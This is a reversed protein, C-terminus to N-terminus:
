FRQLGLVTFVANSEHGNGDRSVSTAIPNSEGDLLTAVANGKSDLMVATDKSELKTAIVNGRM